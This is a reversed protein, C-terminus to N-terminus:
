RMGCCALALTPVNRLGIPHAKLAGAVLWLVGDKLGRARKVVVSVLFENMSAQTAAAQSSPRCCPCIGSPSGAPVHSQSMEKYACVGKDRCFVASALNFEFVHTTHMPFKAFTTLFCDAVSLSIAPRCSAMGTWPQTSTFSSLSAVSM